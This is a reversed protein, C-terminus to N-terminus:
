AHSPVSYKVEAFLVPDPHGALTSRLKRMSRQFACVIHSAPEAPKTNATCPLAATTSGATAVACGRDLKCAHALVVHTVRTAHEADHVRLQRYENVIGLNIATDLRSWM